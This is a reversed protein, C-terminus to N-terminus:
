CIHIECLILNLTSSINQLFYVRYIHIAIKFNLIDRDYTYHYCECKYINRDRNYPRARTQWNHLLDNIEVGLKRTM